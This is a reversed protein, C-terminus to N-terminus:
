WYTEVQPHVEPDGYCESTSTVMFRADFRRAVDLMNRTGASGSELTAIPNAYYFKPSALSALHLVGDFRGMEPLAATVDHEFFTFGPNTKLHEVNRLSGTIFNDFGAVEHGDALLRECLHSGVFGAAGSMLFRLRTDSEKKKITAM